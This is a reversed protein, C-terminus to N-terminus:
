TKVYPDPGIEQDELFCAMTVKDVVTASNTAAADHAQWATDPEFSYKILNAFSL